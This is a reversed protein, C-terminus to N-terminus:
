LAMFLTLPSVESEKFGAYKKYFDALSLNLAHVLVARSGVTEAAVISRELADKLLDLGIGQGQYEKDVGLRGMITVPIESQSFRQMNKPAENRFVSGNSLTYFGKVINSGKECVVYIVANRSAAQKHAKRAYDNITPEGCEFQSLDHDDNLKEPATLGLTETKTATKSSM